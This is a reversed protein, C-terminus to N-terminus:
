GVSGSVYDFYRELLIQQGLTHITESIVSQSNYNAMFQSDRMYIDIEM